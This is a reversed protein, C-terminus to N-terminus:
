PMQIESMEYTIKWHYLSIGWANVEDGSLWCFYTYLANNITRISASADTEVTRTANTFATSFTTYFPAAAKFGVSQVAGGGPTYGRFIGAYLDSPSGPRTYTGNIEAATVVAGEPLNLRWVAGPITGPAGSSRFAFPQALTNTIGVQGPSPIHRSWWSGSEDQTRVDMAAGPIIHYFTKTPLWIHATGTISDGSEVPGPLSLTSSAGFTLSTTHDWDGDAWPSTGTRQLLAIRLNSILVKAAYLSPGVRSWSGAGADDWVANRVIELADTDSTFIGDAGSVRYIAMYSEGTDFVPSLGSVSTVGRSEWILTRKRGVFKSYHTQLRSTEVETETELKLLGLELNGTFQTRNSNMSHFENVSWDSDPWNDPDTAATQYLVMAAGALDLRMSANSGTDRQWQSSASDWQANATLVLTDYQDLYWRLTFPGASVGAGPMEWILTFAAPGALYLDSNRTILRPTTAAALVSAENLDGGLELVGPLLEYLTAIDSVRLGHPNSDSPTQGGLLNRHAEDKASVRDAIKDYLYDVVLSDDTITPGSTPLLSPYAEVTITMGNGSSLTFTGGGSVNQAAGAVTDHPAKYTLNGTTPTFALEAEEPTGPLPAPNTRATTPDIGTIVIGPIISQTITVIVDLFDPADEIVLNGNGDQTVVALILLRDRADVALDLDSEALSQYEFPTLVALRVARQVKTNSSTGDSEHAAPDSEIETYVLGIVSGSTIDVAIGQIREELEILEGNPAYGFGASVDVLSSNLTNATVALGFRVGLQSTSTFRDLIHFVRTDETRRLQRQTVEQGDTYLTRDM